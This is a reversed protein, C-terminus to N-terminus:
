LRHRDSGPPSRAMARDATHALGTLRAQSCCRPHRPEGPLHQRRNRRPLERRTRHRRRVRGAAQRQRAPRPRCIARLRRRGIGRRACALRHRSQRVLPQVFGARELAARYETLPRGFPLPPQPVDDNAGLGIEALAAFAIGTAECRDLEGWVTFAIRGGPRLVRHAEALARAPEAMHHLCFGLTVADFSEADFPIESAKGVRAEVDPFRRRVESVMEDTLDLAIITAGRVLAPGILTGPGTGVDLVHCGFGVGAADLTAEAAAGTMAEFGEAYTAATRGWMARNEDDIRAIQERSLQDITTM